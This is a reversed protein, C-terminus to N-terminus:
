EYKLEGKELLKWLSSTGLPPVKAPKILTFEGEDGLKYGQFLAIASIKLSGPIRKGKPFLYNNNGASVIWFDGQGTIPKVM